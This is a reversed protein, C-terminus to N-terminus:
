GALRDMSRRSAVPSRGTILSARSPVCQPCTVYARGFRVATKAFADFNPTKVDPNDYCGEFSPTVNCGFQKAPEYPFQQESVLVGGALSLAACLRAVTWRNM